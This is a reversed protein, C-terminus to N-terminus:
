KVLSKFAAEVSKKGWGYKCGDNYHTEDLWYDYRRIDSLVGFTKDEVTYITGDKCEIKSGNFGNGLSFSEVWLGDCDKGMVLTVSMLRAM